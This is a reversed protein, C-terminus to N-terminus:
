NGFRMNNAIQSNRYQVDQQHLRKREASILAGLRKKEDVDGARWSSELEHLQVRAAKKFQRRSTGPRGFNNGAMSLVQSYANLSDSPLVREDIFSLFKAPDDCTWGIPKPEHWAM